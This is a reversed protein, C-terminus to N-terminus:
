YDGSMGAHAGSVSASPDFGTGAPIAGYNGKSGVSSGPHDASFFSTTNLDGTTVDVANASHIGTDIHPNAGPNPIITGTNGGETGKKPVSGPHGVLGDAALIGDYSAPDFLGAVFTNTAIAKVVGPMFFNVEGQVGGATGTSSSLPFKVGLSVSTSGGFPTGNLTTASMNSGVSMDQAPHSVATLITKTATSGIASLAAAPSTPGATSKGVALNQLRSTHQKFSPLSISANVNINLNGLSGLKSFSINGHELAGMAFRAATALKAAGGTLFGSFFSIASWPSGSKFIGFAGGLNATVSIANVVSSLNSAWSKPDDRPGALLASSGTPGKAGVEGMPQGARNSFSMEGGANGEEFGLSTDGLGPNGHSDFSGGADVGAHHGGAVQGM